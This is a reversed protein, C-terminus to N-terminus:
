SAAAAEEKAALDDGVQKLTGGFDNVLADQLFRIEKLSRGNSEMSIKGEQKGTEDNVLIGSVIFTRTAMNQIEVTKTKAFNGLVVESGSGRKPTESFLLGAWPGEVSAGQRSRTGKWLRTWQEYVYRQIRMFWKLQNTDVSKNGLGAAEM